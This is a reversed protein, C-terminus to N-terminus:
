GQYDGHLPHNEHRTLLPQEKILLSIVETLKDMNKNRKQLLKRDRKFSGKFAPKLM